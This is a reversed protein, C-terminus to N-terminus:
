RRFEDPLMPVAEAMREERHPHQCLSAFTEIERRAVRRIASDLEAFTADRDAPDLRPAGVQLLILAEHLAQTGARFYVLYPNHGCPCEPLAIRRPPNGQRLADFIVDLTDDLMFIMTRPNALPSDFPELFLLEIWRARITARREILAQRLPERM